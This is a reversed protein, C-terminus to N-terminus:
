FKRRLIIKGMFTGVNYSVRWNDVRVPEGVRNIPPSLMISNITRTIRSIVLRRSRPPITQMRSENFQQISLKGNQAISLRLSIQGLAKIGAPINLIDVKKLAANYTNIMSPPLSMLNVSKVTMTQKIKDNIKRELDRIEATSSIEKARNVNYLAKNYEGKGYFREARAKYKNYEAVKEKRIKEKEVASKEDELGKKVRQIEKELNNLESSTKIKRARKINDLASDYKGNDFDKRASSLYKQYNDEKLRAQSVTRSENIKAQIQNEFNRAETTNKIKKAKRIQELAKSYNRENYYNRAFKYYRNYIDQRKAEDEKKKLESERLNIRDELQDIRQDTKINKALLLNENAKKIDDQELAAEATKIYNDFEKEQNLIKIKENIKEELEGIHETKKMQKALTVNQAALEYEGKNLADEALKVYIDYKEEQSQAALKEDITKELEKVKEDTKIKKAKELASVAKDLEGKVLFDNVDTLYKQFSEESNDQSLLQEIRNRSELSYRGNPHDSLYGRYAEVTNVKKALLWSSNEQDGNIPKKSLYPIGVVLLAVIAVFILIFFIFKFSSSKRIKEGSKTILFSRDDTVVAPEREITLKKDVASIAKEKVDIKSVGDSISFVYEKNGFDIRGKYLGEKELTKFFYEIVDM